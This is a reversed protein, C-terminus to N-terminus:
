SLGTLPPAVTPAESINQRWLDYFPIWVSLNEEFVEAMRLTSQKLVFGEIYWVLIFLGGVFASYVFNARAALLLLLAVLLINWLCYLIKALRYVGGCKERIIRRIPLLKDKSFWGESWCDFKALALFGWLADWANELSVWRFRLVEHFQVMVCWAIICEITRLPSDFGGFIVTVNVVTMTVVTTANVTTGTLDRGFRSFIRGLAILGIARSSELPVERWLPHNANEAFSASAAVGRRPAHRLLFLFVFVFFM